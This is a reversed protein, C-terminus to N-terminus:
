GSLRPTLAGPKARASPKNAASGTKWPVKANVVLSPGLVQPVQKYQLEELRDAAAAVLAKFSISKRERLISALCFTFAGYSTAGHRYEYSLQDEGCAEIILPLYPGVIKDPRKRKERAYDGSSSQRLMAARGLRMTSGNQGFFRATAKDDPSFDPNLRKFDREVWMQTKSDWKLERHRVDDPPSLGRAKPGGQRHIGGSHCCDFILVLKLKYPLQSYLAYIQEDTISTEASWNFDWPVLTEAQRDPEFDDGYEPIRAGHGSFYFVREDGPQADDLLWELRELIGSATARDDLCTRIEEPGFGCEQLVASMTFVDNVCGALRDGERPYENIGVLLARRRSKAAAPRAPRRWPNATVGFAKAGVAEDALPRWLSGVTVNHGLYSEAAHDGAGKLDFPTLLQSFNPVGPLKLPATFVDDHENYLHHWHRVALAEVRGETLNGVVFPNGIQSGFTVYHAKGLIRAADPQRAAEHSFANYTVLSGLSHALIVDPSFAVVQDLVLERTQRQFEKDEVWAVVYGATWRVKESVDSVLGRQRRGAQSVGSRALKWLAKATDAFSIKTQEFIPDYAVFQFELRVEEKFSARLAAEWVERWPSTRHDGLGHVCLVKITKPM